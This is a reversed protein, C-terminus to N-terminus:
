AMKQNCRPLKGHIRIHERLLFDERRDYDETYELKFTVTDKKCPDESFNTNWYKSIFRDKLDSTKGIYICEGKKDYLAYVAGIPKQAVIHVTDKDWPLLEEEKFM